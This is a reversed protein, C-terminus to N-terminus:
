LPSKPTLRDITSLIKCKSKFSQLSTANRVFLPLKNWLCSGHYQFSKKMYETKPKPIYLPSNLAYRTPIQPTRFIILDKLYEPVLGNIVKFMFLCFQYDVRQLVSQWNLQRLLSTHPTFFDANLVLRAYRNQLRQLKSTFCQSSRGWIVLGYDIHPLILGNYLMILVKRPLYQKIQRIFGITRAIKNCTKDIHKDFKLLNDFIIGLYKFNNVQEIVQSEHQILIQKARVKKHTGFLMAKCKNTNLKLDNTQVWQMIKEFESQLSIQVSSVDRAKCFLATDDAYLCLKTHEQFNLDCIDNIFVVFLLPGLISGQPIGMGVDRFTSLKGNYSVCQSRDSLYNRFWALETDHVGYQELKELLITHNVLDFARKLDLFLAGIIYGFDVNTHLYDSADILATATSLPRFGSQCNSLM